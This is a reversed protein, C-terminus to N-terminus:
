ASRGAPNNQVLEAELLRRYPGESAALDRPQGQQILQGQDLVLVWDSIQAAHM